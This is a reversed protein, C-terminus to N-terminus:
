YTEERGIWYDPRRHQHAVAIILIHDKEISYLLGYPFKHLLSKRIEGRVASFAEPYDAIRISAKKVEEKFRKGLGEYEREYYLVAEDLEQKAYRSFIVKM